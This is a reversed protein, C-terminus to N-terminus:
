ASRSRSRQFTQGGAHFGTMTMLSSLREGSCSNTCSRIAITVTKEARSWPSRDYLFVICSAATRVSHEVFSLLITSINLEDALPIGGTFGAMAASPDLIIEGEGITLPGTLLAACGMLPIDVCGEIDPIFGNTQYVINRSHSRRSVLEDTSRSASAHNTVHFKRRQLLYSLATFV